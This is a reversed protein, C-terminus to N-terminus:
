SLYFIDQLILNGTWDPDEKSTNFTLIVEYDCNSRTKESLYCVYSYFTKSGMGYGHLSLCIINKNKETRKKERQIHSFLNQTQTKSFTALQSNKKGLGLYIM